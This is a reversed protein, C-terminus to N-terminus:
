RIFKRKLETVGKTIIRNLSDNGNEFLIFKMGNERFLPMIISDKVTMKEFQQFVIDDKDPIQHGVLILNKINYKDPMWFLFSANDSYVEPLGAEERYYNLAGASFYGRCYVMTKLKQDEPLKNYVAGAKLAMEKWGMMDAFDQPLPHMQQDEWKFSGTKSLGTKEYYKVLVEPKALPMILPMAFLGLAFPFIVMMYRTWRLKLSTAKELQYAGFAFLVPYAGLAYYDKGRLVILLAIVFLYTWAIFRYPKGQSYFIVHALGGIWIFLCPLNMILQSIIFGAASNYKLQEEQLENMHTIVPFRHNYQWIINPLFILLAILSAFYFHKNIFIKRHRTLLIGALISITYFAVSYKSMMGLGIAAGFLYLWKNQQTQIFRIVSFAMLTWFFVDLFGPMFLFFLRMYGDIMFPLWALFLAFIRGGLSLIIRGVLLFTLAGFLAPWVRIWFMSAGFFNTIWAFVSLMPPIEMYGWDMHHAEALYLYEDRHPQYFSNQLFFPAILKIIALLFLFNRASRTSQM